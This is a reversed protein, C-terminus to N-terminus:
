GSRARLEYGYRRLLPLTLLSVTLEDLKSMKQRWENDARVRIPGKEFRSPNGSVTHLDPRCVEGGRPSAADDATPVLGLLRLSGHPNAAFDEYRILHYPLRCTKAVLEVSMNWELWLAATEAPRLRPMYKTGDRAGLDVKRMWSYAVGRPDRVLHIMQIRSTIGSKALLFAYTPHKSSDIVVRRGSVSSVAKYLRVIQDYYDRPATAVIRNRGRESWLRYMRRSRLVQDHFKTMRSATERTLLGPAALRVSEWFACSSFRAGCACPADELVGGSWISDLEGASVFGAQSGLFQDLITSGSRGLGAIYTIRVDASASPPHKVISMVECKFM